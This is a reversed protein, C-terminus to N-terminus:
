RAHLVEWKRIRGIAGPDLGHDGAAEKLMHVLTDLDLSRDHCKQLRLLLTWHTVLYSLRPILSLCGPEGEMERGYLYDPIFIGIACAAGGDGRLSCLNIGMGISDPRVSKRGQRALHDCVADFVEQPTMSQYEEPTYFRTM